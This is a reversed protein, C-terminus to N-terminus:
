LAAIAWGTLAQLIAGATLIATIPRCALLWAAL